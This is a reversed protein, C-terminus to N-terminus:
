NAQWASRSKLISSFTRSILGGGSKGDSSSSGGLETELAMVAKVIASGKAQDYLATGSNVAESVTRFDNPVISLDSLKLTREIDQLTLPSNKEYRNVVVCLRDSPLALDRQLIQLLRSADRLTTLSQQVVVVVRQARELVAVSVEDIRRPLDVIVQENTTAALDLLREIQRATVEHAPLSDEATHGLVRLGSSHKVAYGELAMADLEDLNDIAQLLGRKPYLDLYLPLTGFQLDLDVLMVRQQSVGAMIHAVNCALLTAGSGGKANIFTTVAASSSERNASRRDRAVNSLADILEQEVIPIGLFDRAGARMALRMVSVDGSPGLVIVPPRLDASRNSLAELEQQWNQSLHLILVDPTAQIGHLPDVHGNVVLRRQTRLGDYSALCKELQDLTEAHRSVLLVNLAIEM